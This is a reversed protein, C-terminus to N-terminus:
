GKACLNRRHGHGSLSRWPECTATLASLWFLAVLISLGFLGINFFNIPWQFTTLFSYQNSLKPGLPSPQRTGTRDRQRSKQGKTGPSPRLIATHIVCGYGRVLFLFPQTGAAINRISKWELDRNVTYRDVARQARGFVILASHVNSEVAHVSLHGEITEPQVLGGIQLDVLGPCLDTLFHDEGGVPVVAGKDTPSFYTYKYGIYRGIPTRQRNQREIATARDAPGNRFPCRAVPM